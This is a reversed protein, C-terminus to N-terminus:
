DQNRIIVVGTRRTPVTVPASHTTPLADRPALSVGDELQGLAVFTDALESTQPRVTEDMALYLKALERAQDSIGENAAMAQSTDSAREVIRLLILELGVFLVCLIVWAISIYLLMNMITTRRAPRACIQLERTYVVEVDARSALLAQKSVEIGHQHHAGLPAGRLRWCGPRGSTFNLHGCIALDPRSGRWGNWLVRRLFAFKGLAAKVSAGSFNSTPLLL